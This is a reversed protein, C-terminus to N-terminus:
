ATRICETASDSCRDATEGSKDAHGCPPMREQAARPEIAFMLSVMANIDIGDRGRPFRMVDRTILVHFVLTKRTDGPSTLDCPRSDSLREREIAIKGTPASRKRTRL